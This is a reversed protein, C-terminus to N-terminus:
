PTLQAAVLNDCIAALHVPTTAVQKYDSFRGADWDFGQRELTFTVEAPLTGIMRHYRECLLTRDRQERETVPERETAHREALDTLLFRDNDVLTRIADRIDEGDARAEVLRTLRWRVAKDFQDTSAYNHAYMPFNSVLPEAEIRAASAYVQACILLAVAAVQATRLPPAGLSVTAAVREPERRNLWGWPLFALFLVIWAPWYIGQFLYLGVFLGAGVAGAALRMAPGRAFINVIFAAEVVIAALSFLVAAWHHSAVWLGWDVHAQGSDAVFHYKVAGGTIWGLGSQNLKAYAAALLAVGLTLGPWWIAFGYARSPGAASSWRGAGWPVALWGLFTVLPLGLDHASGFELRVLTSLFFAAAFAAYSLRAWLGITFLLAAVLMAVELANCAQPSAAIQHVLELDPVARHQQREFPVPMLNTTWAIWIFGIGLATRFGALARADLRPIWPALWRTMTAAALRGAERLRPFPRRGSLLLVAVAALTVATWDAARVIVDGAFTFRQSRAIRLATSDISYTSRDIYHTDAVAPDRVLARIHDRSANRLNYRWTREDQRRGDALGFRAELDQRAADEIDPQWRIHVIAGPPGALMRAAFPLAAAVAICIFAATRRAASKTSM